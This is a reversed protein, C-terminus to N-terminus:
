NTGAYPRNNKIRYIYALVQAVAQFLKEPIARGIEVSTYLTRALIKDEVIPVHHEAAIQKIRQAVLDAGKAVVKPAEMAGANYRLAVALHTPNTVVVTAKPVEHMMRRYAIRRQIEKVKGKVIPDGETSRFEEKLEQKTMRMDREFEWRQYSYDAGALVLFALGTKFGVGASALGIFALVAGVDSDMLTLADAMVGDLALYGALGVIVIKLVNKLLEVMSRRSLMIRKLGTLPNLKEGSPMLSQLSFVFGVQAVSALVGVLMLGIVLPAVVLLVHVITDVLLRHVSAVNAEFAGSAVFTTRAIASLQSAVAAGSFYLIMLGFV